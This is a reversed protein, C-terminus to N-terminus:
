GMDLESLKKKIEEESLNELSIDQKKALIEKLKKAMLSKETKDKLLEKETKKTKLIYLVIDFAYKIASDEASEEKLFDEENQIDKLKRNFEKALENLDVLKLDWLDETSLIGQATKFRLKMRMAKEFM